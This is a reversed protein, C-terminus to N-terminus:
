LSRPSINMSKVVRSAALANMVGGALNVRDLTWGTAVQVLRGVDDAVCTTGREGPLLAYNTKQYTRLLQCSFMIVRSAFVAALPQRWGPSKKDM